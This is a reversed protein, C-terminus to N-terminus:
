IPADSLNWELKGQYSQGSKVNPNPGIKLRIGEGKPWQIVTANDDTSTATYIEQNSQNLPIDQGAKSYILVQNLVNAGATLPQTERVYLHWQAKQVRGDAVSLSNTVTAPNYIKTATPVSLTGFSIQSPASVLRLTGDGIPLTAVLSQQAIATGGGNTGNVFFSNVLTTNAVNPAITASYQLTLAENATVLNNGALLNQFQYASGSPSSSQPVVVPTGIVTSVGTASVKSVQPNTLNTVGSPIWNLLLQNDWIANSNQLQVKITFRVKQNTVASIAPIWTGDKSWKEVIQTVALQPTVFAITSSVNNSSVLIKNATRSSIGQIVVSVQDGGKLPALGTLAFTGNANLPVNTTQNNVTVAVQYLGTTVTQIASGTIQTNGVVPTTLTPAVIPWKVTAINSLTSQYQDTGTIAKAHLIATVTDGYEYANAANISFNGSSDVLVGTTVIPAHSGDPASLTIDATYTYGPDKTQNITGTISKNGHQMTDNIVPPKIALIPCTGLGMSPTNISGAKTNGLGVTLNIGQSASTMTGKIPYNAGNAAPPIIIGNKYLAVTDIVMNLSWEILLGLSLGTKPFTIVVASLSENYTLTFGKDTAQISATSTGGLISQTPYTVNGTLNKLFLTQKATNGALQAAIEPPIQVALIPVTNLGVAVLPVYKYHITTIGQGCAGTTYSGTLTSTGVDLDLLRPSIQNTSKQNSESNVPENLDTEDNKENNTLNVQPGNITSNSSISPATSDIPCSSDSPTSLSTEETKIEENLTVAKVMDQLYFIVLTLMM